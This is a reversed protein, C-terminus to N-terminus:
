CAEARDPERCAASGEANVGDLQAGAVIRAIGMARERHEVIARREAFELLLELIAAKGDARQAAVSIRQMRVRAEGFSKLFGAALGYAQGLPEAHGHHDIKGSAGAIAIARLIGVPDGARAARIDPLEEFPLPLLFDRGIPGPVRLERFIVADLDRDLHMGAEDDIARLRQQLQARDGTRRDAAVVIRAMHEPLADIRDLGDANQAIRNEVHM